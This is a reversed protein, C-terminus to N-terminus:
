DFHMESGAKTLIGRECQPCLAKLSSGDDGYFLLERSNEAANSIIPRVRVLDGGCSCLYRPKYEGEPYVLKFHFKNYLKNCEACHFLFKGHGNWEPTGDREEILTDGYKELLGEVDKKIQEDISYRQFAPKGTREEIELFDCGDMGHGIFVMFDYDCETCKITYGLGM